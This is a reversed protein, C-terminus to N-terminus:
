MCKLVCVFPTCLYAHVYTCYTAIGAAVIM